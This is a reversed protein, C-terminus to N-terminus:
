TLELELDRTSRLVYFFGVLECDQMAMEKMEKEVFIRRLLYLLGANGVWQTRSGKERHSQQARHEELMKNRGNLSIKGIFTKLEKDYEFLDRQQIIRKLREKGRVEFNVAENCSVGTSAWRKGIHKGILGLSRLRVKAAGGDLSMRFGSTLTGQTIAVPQSTHRLAFRASPRKGTLAAFLCRAGPSLSMVLLAISEHTQFVHLRSQQPCHPTPPSPLLISLTRSHLVCNTAVSLM